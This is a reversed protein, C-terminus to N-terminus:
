YFLFIFLRCVYLFLNDHQIIHSYEKMSISCSSYKELCIKTLLWTQHTIIDHKMVNKQKKKM